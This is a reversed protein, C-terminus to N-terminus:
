SRNDNNKACLGRQCCMRNSLDRFEKSRRIRNFIEKGPGSTTLSIGIRESGISVEYAVARFADRGADM